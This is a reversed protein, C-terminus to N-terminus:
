PIQEDTPSPPTTGILMPYTWKRGTVLIEYRMTNQQHKSLYKILDPEYETGKMRELSHRQKARLQPDTDSAMCKQHKQRM